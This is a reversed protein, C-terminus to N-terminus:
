WATSGGDVALVAGTTFTSAKSALFAIAEASEEPTGLRHLPRSRELMSRRAAGDAARALSEAVLPTETTGPCVCNVRVGFPASDIAASRTLAVLAAKSVNYAVQDALGKLGAESAVNVVVGRRDRLLPMAAKMCLFAGTLNVAMIRNWTDPDTTEVDGTAYIGANNVLIDLGGFRDVTGAIAAAIGDPDAMDCPVWEAAGGAARIGAALATADGEGRALIAVAAGRAALLRATAAGIGRSGGTIAAVKNEFAM